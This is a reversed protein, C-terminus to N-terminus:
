PLGHSGSGVDEVQGDGRVVQIRRLVEVDGLQAALEGPAVVVPDGQVEEAVLDHAVQGRALGAAGSLRYGRCKPTVNRSAASKSASCAQATM